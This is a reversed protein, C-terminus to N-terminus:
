VMNGRYHGSCHSDHIHTEKQTNGITGYYRWRPSISFGSCAHPCAGGTPGSRQCAGSAGTRQPPMRAAVANAGCQGCDADAKPSALVGSFERGQGQPRDPGVRDERARRLGHLRRQGRLLDERALQLPVPRALGREPARLRGPLRAPREEALGAV